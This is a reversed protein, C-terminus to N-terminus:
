KSDPIIILVDIGECTRRDRENALELPIAGDAELTFYTSTM